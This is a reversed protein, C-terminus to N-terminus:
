EPLGKKSLEVVVENARPSNTSFVLEFRGDTSSTTTAFEIRSNKVDRIWRVVAGAVPRGTTGDLIIGSVRTEFNCAIFLFSLFILTYRM